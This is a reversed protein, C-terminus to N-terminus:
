ELALSFCPPLVPHNQAIILIVEEGYLTLRAKRDTGVGVFYFNKEFPALILAQLCPFQISIVQNGVQIPPTVAQSLTAANGFGDGAKM